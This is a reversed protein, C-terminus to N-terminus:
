KTCYKVFSLETHNRLINKELIDIKILLYNDKKPIYEFCVYCMLRCDTLFISLSLTTFQNHVYNSDTKETTTRRMDNTLRLNKIMKLKKELVLSSIEVLTPM